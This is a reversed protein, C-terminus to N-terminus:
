NTKIYNKHVSSIEFDTIIDYELNSTMTSM